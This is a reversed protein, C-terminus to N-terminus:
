LSVTTFGHKRLDREATDLSEQSVGRQRLQNTIDDWSSTQQSVGFYVEGQESSRPLLMFMGNMKVILFKIEM